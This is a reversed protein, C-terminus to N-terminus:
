ASVNLPLSTERDDRSGSAWSRSADWEIGEPADSAPILHHTTVSIQDDHVEILRVDFPFETAAATTLHVRNLRQASWTVHWHGALVLRLHPHRNLVRDLEAQIEQPYVPIPIGASEIGPHLPDPSAHLSLIAPKDPHTALQQDLWDLQSQIVAPVPWTGPQYFLRPGDSSMWYNNLGYVICEPFEIRADALTASPWHAVMERWIAGADDFTVDHNGLCILSPHHFCEGLRKVAREITKPNGDHVLDGGFIILDTQQQDAWDAFRELLTEVGDVWRPQMHYHDASAGIHLDTLFAMKM